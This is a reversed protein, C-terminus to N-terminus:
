VHDRTLDEAIRAVVEAWEGREKQRYLRMTPYWPSDSRELLWRWDPVFRLLTWTPVALAGALHAVGSEVTVVLDLNVLAAALDALSEPDFDRGLDIIPFQCAAIQETGAGVQLSLLKVGAVKALPEFCKLPLSRLHDKPNKPNGQWVIGVKLRADIGVAAKIAERWRKVREPDALLYPVNAPITALTTGFLGPLSVLAIQADHEPWPDGVRIVQDVGAMGHVLDYLPRHCEFIVRGGREKVLPLYRVFQIADGLGQEAHVLVTKGALPAGDWRAQQFSRPALGPQSWRFEYDPWGGALDGQLLRLMSRNWRALKHSTDCVLTQRYSEEAEAFRGQEFLAIGLNNHAEAHRPNIQLAQRYCRMAEDAQGQAYLAYGLSNLAEAYNPNIALAQRHREIAEDLRNKEQLAVGLNNLAYAHRPILALARQFSDIAEDVQGTERLVVGLNNHADAYNPNLRLTQRYAFIAEGPKGLDKLAAGLNNQADVHNPNNVLAQRYFAAAEELRGQGHRLVGLNCLVNAHRPEAQLIQGYLAEAQALHGAQHYRVAQEYAQSADFM